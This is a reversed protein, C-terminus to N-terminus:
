GGAGAFPNSGEGDDAEPKAVKTESAPTLGFESALARLEASSSKQIGVSPNATFWTSETGDKKVSRNEVVLGRAQIDATAAVFTAFAECYAALTAADIPKVISLRSLEPVVRDWEERARASLEFPPEPELRVFPPPEVVKRGGSDRGKGRGEVLKLGAPKAKRGRAAAM